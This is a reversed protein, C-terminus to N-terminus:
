RDRARRNERRRRNAKRRLTPAFAAGGLLSLLALSSPEPAAAANIVGVADLDCGSSAGNTPWPDNVMNGLSDYTAYLPNISGVPNM